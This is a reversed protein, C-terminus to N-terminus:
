IITASMINLMGWFEANNEMCIDSDVQSIYYITLFYM